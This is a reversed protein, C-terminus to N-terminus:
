NRHTENDKCQQESQLSECAFFSRFFCCVLFLVILVYLNINGTSSAIVAVPLKVAPGDSLPAGTNPKRFYVLHFNFICEPFGFQIKPLFYRYVINEILKFSLMQFMRSFETIREFVEITHRFTFAIDSPM